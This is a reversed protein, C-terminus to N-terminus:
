SWLIEVFLISFCGTPQVNHLKVYIGRQFENILGCDVKNGIQWKCGGTGPFQGAIWRIGMRRCVVHRSSRHPSAPPSKRISVM